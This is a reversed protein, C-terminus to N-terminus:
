PRLVASIERALGSVHPPELMTRHDGGVPIVTVDDALAHLTASGTWGEVPFVVVPFTAHPPRYRRLARAGIELFARYRREAPVTRAPMVRLWVRLARRRMTRSAVKLHDGETSDPGGLVPDLLLLRVSRSRQVLRHAAEYAVAGGASHAVLVVPGGPQEAEVARAVREAASGVTSDMRGPGHLGHAEIVVCPYRAGLHEALWPFALATGGAGPICFLPAADGRPELRVLPGTRHPEGQLRALAAPTRHELLVTPEQAAWGADALRGVLEVAALSDLGLDWLDDDPGVDARGLIYAATMAAFRESETRARRRTVSRWPEPPASLLRQRDVKGSATLPLREHRVLLSPVLYSPLASALSGRVDEPTLTADDDLELHGVLAPTGDMAPQPLVVASRVGPIRQLAHQPQSPEVLRGRIKVFDDIRGVRHYCGDETQTAVDGSLWWRAGDPDRGFTTATADPDDLYGSALRGMLVIQTPGHPESADIPALRARSTPVPWGLPVPGTGVDDEPRVDFRIAEGLSESAGYKSRIVADASVLARLRTVQEWHLPEGFTIALTASELRRGAPWRETLTTIFSPVFAVTTLGERDIRELLDRPDQLALDVM